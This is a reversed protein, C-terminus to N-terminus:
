FNAIDMAVTERYLQCTSGDRIILDIDVFLPKGKIDALQVSSIATQDGAPNQHGINASVQLTTAPPVIGGISFPSIIDGQLQTYSSGNYRWLWGGWLKNKVLPADGTTRLVVNQGTDDQYYYTIIVDNGIATAADEKINGNGALFATYVTNWETPAVALDDFTFGQKLSFNLYHQVWYDSSDQYKNAYNFNARVEADRIMKERYEIVTEDTNNYIANGLACITVTYEGLPLNLAYLDVELENTIAKEFTHLVVKSHNKVHVVYGTAHELADWKFTGYEIRSNGVRGLTRKPETYNLTAPVSNQIERNNSVAQVAFFYNGPNLATDYNYATGTVTVPNGDEVTISYNDANKVSEWTLRTGNSSLKTPTELRVITYPLSVIPSNDYQTNGLAYLSVTYNGPELWLGPIDLLPPDDGVVNTNYISVKGLMMNVVYGSAGPVTDWKLVGQHITVNLIAGLAPKQAAPTKKTYSITEKKSDQYFENGLAVIEITYTGDILGIELLDAFEEAASELIEKLVTQNQKIIIKYGSAHDLRHWVLRDGHIAIGSLPGLPKKEITIGIHSQDSDCIDERNSAAQVSVNYKGPKVSQLDYSTSSTEALPLDGGIRYRDAGVVADWNIFGEKKQLNAPAALKSASVKESLPSDLLYFSDGKAQIQFTADTKVHLLDYETVDQKIHAFYIGDCYLEYGSNKEIQNWVLKTKTVQLTPAPLRIVTVSQSWDSDSHKIQNGSARIRVNYSKSETFESLDFLTASTEKEDRNVAIKYGTANEIQNWSILNNEVSIKKPHELIPKKESKTNTLVAHTAGCIILGAIVISTIRVSKRDFLTKFKM